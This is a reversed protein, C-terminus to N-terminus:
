QGRSAHLRGSGPRNVPSYGGQKGSDLAKEFKVLFIKSTM